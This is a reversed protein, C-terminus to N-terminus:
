ASKKVRQNLGIRQMEKEWILETLLLDQYAENGSIRLPNKDLVDTIFGEAQRKFSWSWNVYPRIQEQVKGAKYIEVSAPINRLLAPPMRIIMEGDSFTIKVEESWGRHSMKGTELTALFNEFGLVVLQGGHQTLNV